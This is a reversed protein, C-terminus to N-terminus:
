QQPPASNPPTTPPTTPISAPVVAPKVFKRKVVFYYIIAGVWNALVIILVWVAKNEIPHSAAHVIMMIWFITLALGIIGGIIVVWLFGFFWSAAAKNMEDQAKNFAEITQQQILEPTCLVEQGDVVCKTADGVPIPQEPLAPLNPLVQAFAPGVIIFSLLLFLFVKNMIILCYM